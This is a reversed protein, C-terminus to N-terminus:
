ARKQSKKPCKAKKQNVIHAFQWIVQLAHMPLIASREKRDRNHNKNIDTVKIKIKLIRPHPSM